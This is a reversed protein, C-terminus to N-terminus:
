VVGATTASIDEVIARLGRELARQCLAERNPTHGLLTHIRELADLLETNSADLSLIVDEDRAPTKPTKGDNMIPEEVTEPEPVSKAEPEPPLDDLTIPERQQRRDAEENRFDQWWRKLAPIDAWTWAPSGGRSRKVKAPLLETEGWNELKVLASQVTHSEVELVAAANAVGYISRDRTKMSRPFGMKELRTALLAWKGAVIIHKTDPFEKKLFHVQDDTFWETFLIAYRPAPGHDSFYRKESNWHSTVVLDFEDHLKEILGQINDDPRGGILWINEPM